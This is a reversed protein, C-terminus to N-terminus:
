KKASLVSNTRPQKAHSKSHLQRQRRGNRWAQSSKREKKPIKSDIWCLDADWGKVKKVAVTPTGPRRQTIEQATQQGVPPHRGRAPGRGRKSRKKEIREDDLVSAAWDAYIDEVELDELEELDELDLVSAAWDSYIDEVEEKRERTKPNEVENFIHRFAKFTNIPDPRTQRISKNRMPTDLGSDQSSASMTINWFADSVNVELGNWDTRSRRPKEATIEEYAQIIEGTTGFQDWLSWQEWTTHQHERAKEERPWTQQNEWERDEWEQRDHAEWELRSSDEWDPLLEETMDTKDERALLAEDEEDTLLMGIAAPDDWLFVSDSSPRRSHHDVELLGAVTDPDEWPFYQTSPKEVQEQQAEILLKSSMSPHPPPHAFVIEKEEWISTSQKEMEEHKMLLEITAQNSASEDWFFSL